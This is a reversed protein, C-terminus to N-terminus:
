LRNSLILLLVNSLTNVENLDVFSGDIAFTDAIKKADGVAFSKAYDAAEARIATEDDSGTVAEKNAAYVGSTQLMGFCLVLRLLLKSTKNIPSMKRKGSRVIARGDM